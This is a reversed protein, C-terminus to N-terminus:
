AAGAKLMKSRFKVVAMIGENASTCVIALLFYAFGLGIAMDLVTSNFFGAM